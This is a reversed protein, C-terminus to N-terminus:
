RGSVGCRSVVEHPLSVSLMGGESLALLRFDCAKFGRVGIYYFSSNVYASDSTLIRVENRGFHSSNWYYNQPGANPVTSVYLDPAGGSSIPDVVVRINAFRSHYHRFQRVESAGVRDVHPFREMLLVAVSSVDSVAMLVFGALKGGWSMWCSVCFSLM